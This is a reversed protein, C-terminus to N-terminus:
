QAQTEFSLRARESSRFCLIHILIIATFLILLFSWFLWHVLEPHSSLLKCCTPDFKAYYGGILATATATLVGAFSSIHLIMQWHDVFSIAHDKATNDHECKYIGIIDAIIMEMRYWCFYAFIALMLSVFFWISIYPAAQSNINNLAFIDTALIGYIFTQIRQSESKKYDLFSEIM